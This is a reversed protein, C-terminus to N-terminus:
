RRTPIGDAADTPQTPAISPKASPSPLTTTTPAPGPTAPATAPAIPGTAAATPAAESRPNSPPKGSGTRPFRSIRDIPSASDKHRKGSAPRTAASAAPTNAAPIWRPGQVFQTVTPGLNWSKVDDRNGPIGDPGASIAGMVQDAPQDTCTLEIRHGWPDITVIGLAAVDPCPAGPHTRAWEPVHFLVSQIQEVVATQPDPPTIPQAVITPRPPTPQTAAASDISPAAPQTSPSEPSVQLAILGGGVSGVGAACLVAITMGRGM